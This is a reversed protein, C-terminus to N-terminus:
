RGKMETQNQDNAIHSEGARSSISMLLFENCLPKLYFIHFLSDCLFEQIFHIQIERSQGEKGGTERKVFSSIPM